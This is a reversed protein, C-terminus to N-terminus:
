GLKKKASSSSFQRKREEESPITIKGRVSANEFCKNRDIAVLPLECHFCDFKTYLFTREDEEVISTFQPNRLQIDFIYTSDGLEPNFPGSPLIYLYLPPPNLGQPEMCYKQLTFLAKFCEFQRNHVIDILNVSSVLGRFMINAFISSLWEGENPVAIREKSRSLIQVYLDRLKREANSSFSECRQCLLKISLKGAGFKRSLSWDWIFNGASDCHVNRFTLLLCKPFIHSEPDGEKDSNRRHKKKIGCLPCVECNGGIRFLQNVTVLFLVQSMSSDMQFGTEENWLQKNNLEKMFYSMLEQLRRRYEEEKGSICTEYKPGLYSHVSKHFIKFMNMLISDEATAEEQGQGLEILLAGLSSRFTKWSQTVELEGENHTSKQDLSAITRELSAITQELSAIKSKLNDIVRGKEQNQDELEKVRQKEHQLEKEHKQREVALEADRLSSKEVNGPQPSSDTPARV